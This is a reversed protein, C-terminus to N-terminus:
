ENSDGGEGTGSDPVLKKQQGIMDIPIYNELVKFETLGAPELFADERVEDGNLYGRDAM